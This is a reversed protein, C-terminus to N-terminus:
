YANPDRFARVVTLALIKLDFGLSWRRLYEIDAELRREISTRGRLGRVQAWGTIGSRVKHRIMYGPLRSGFVQTFEPREPRPGVLSMDGRVVNWLQPLEDLNLHRLWAGIRTRRPDDRTAWRAGTEAEADPVMTRLKLITFPRGDLGVRQQRFLVPGDPDDLKIAIALAGLLPATLVLGLASAVLDFSRKVVANWGILPSEILRLTPLGDLDELGARITRFGGLDLVIRVTATSEALEAVVKAPDLPDDRDLAIVVQDVERDRAVRPLSSVDGLLPPLSADRHATGVGSGVFGIVELGTDKRRRMRRYTALGLPGTGVILVRRLNFGRRRLMALTVRLGLRLSVLGIAVLGGFTLLVGRSFPEGHWLFAATAVALTGLASVELTWRAEELRSRWRRPRYLGRERLLLHWVPLMAVGMVLYPGPDPPGPPPPGWGLQFRLTYALGWATAVVGLDTLAHLTRFVEGYRRLM